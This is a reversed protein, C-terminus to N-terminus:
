SLRYLKDLEKSYKELIAHRLLKYSKSMMGNEITWPEHILVFAKIREHNEIDPLMRNIEEKVFEKIKVNLSMYKPSTWHIGNKKAYAQLRDYNPVILASVFPKQFGVVLVQEIIPSLTIRQELVGPAVYKGSSTKFINKKRDTIFLFGDEDVFGIDGTHLWGEQILKKTDTPNEYYGMMVNPGKVLIEGYEENDLVDIKVEVNEIPKGVSGNKYHNSEFRNVSIVPSSETMGYGERMPIGAAEFLNSLSTNLKSAGVIVGILQGGFQKRFQRFVTLRAVGIKLRYLLDWKSHQDYDMSIKIAWQIVKEFVPGQQRKFHDLYAYLKEIIKPVATFLHPRIEKYLSQLDSTIPALHVSAGFKLYSLIVTREFVHSYPLFSLVRSRKPLPLLSVISEINSYINRHSLMVAKSNGSTGSTQIITSLDAPSINSILDKYHKVSVPSVNELEIIDSPISFLKHSSSVNNSNTIILKPNLNEKVAFWKEESISEYVLCSIAGISQIAFDFALIVAITQEPRIIVKDDKKIEQAKLYGICKRILLFFDHTTYSNWIGNNYEKILVLNPKSESIHLPIEPIISVNM